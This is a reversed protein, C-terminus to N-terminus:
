PWDRRNRIRGSPFPSLRFGPPREQGDDGEHGEDGDAIIGLGPEQVNVGDTKAQPSPEEGGGNVGTRRIYEIAPMKTGNGAKQECAHPDPRDEAGPQASVNIIDGSTVKRGKDQAHNADGEGAHGEPDGGGPLAM